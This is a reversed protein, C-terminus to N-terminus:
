ARIAPSTAEVTQGPRLLGRREADDIIGFALRDKVSGGPNFSEVKVFMEVHAPALRNLRVVPTEGITELINNYIMTGNEAPPKRYQKRGGPLTGTENRRQDGNNCERRPRAPSRRRSGAPPARTGSRVSTSTCPQRQRGDQPLRDSLGATEALDAIDALTGRTVRQECTTGSTVLAAPTTPTRGHAILAASVDRLRRVPMYVVLTRGPTALSAWDPEHNPSGAVGPKLQATVLTVAHAEDRHTLPIGAYAGCGAAATIGPVVQFPLGAEALALAEEAGRGFVFPDGGKLRCVRLGARVKDVLLRNIDAQDASPGGGTKGVAILEADRRAFSLIEPAVLRDYM